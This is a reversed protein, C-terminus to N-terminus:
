REFSISDATSTMYIFADSANISNDLFKQKFKNQGSAGNCGWKSILILEEKDIKTIMKIDFSKFMKEATHNLLNQLDIEAKTEIIKMERLYCEKKVELVKKYLPLIDFGSKKFTERIVEYQHKSLDANTIMALTQNIDIYEQTINNDLANKVAM